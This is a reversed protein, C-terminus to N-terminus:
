IDTYRYAGDKSNSLRKILDRVLRAMQQKSESIHIILNHIWSYYLRTEGTASTEDPRLLGPAPSAVHNAVPSHPSISHRAKIPARDRPPSSGLSACTNSLKNLSEEFETTVFVTIIKWSSINYYFLM